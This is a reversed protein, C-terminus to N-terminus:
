VSNASLDSCTRDPMPTKLESLTLRLLGRLESSIKPSNVLHKRLWLLNSGSDSVSRRFTPLEVEALLLTNLRELHTAM